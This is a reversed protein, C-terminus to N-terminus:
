EGGIGSALQELYTLTTDQAAKQEKQNRIIAAQQQNNTKLQNAFKTFFDEEPIAKEEETEEPADQTAVSDLVTQIHESAEKLLQEHKASITRGAKTLTARVQEKQEATFTEFSETSIAIEKKGLEAQEKIADLILSIAQNIKDITSQSVEDYEFMYALWQLDSLVYALSTVQSVDKKEGDVETESPTFLGKLHGFTLDKVPTADTIEVSTNEPTTSSEVTKAPTTVADEQQPEKPEEVPKDEKPEAPKEAEDKKSEEKEVVADVNIGKSRMITLAEPNDPVPVSSFEFLEWTKFNYGGFENEEYGDKQPMFGISWANLFGQKYMEYIVDAEQYLGEPTFEVTATVGKSDVKLSTCKAIPKSAYNHAFLVVPNKMFHDYQMGDPQVTDKSRDPNSTSIRVLLTRKVDDAVKLESEFNKYIQVKQPEKVNDLYKGVLESKKM